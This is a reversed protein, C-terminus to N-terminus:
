DSLMLYEMNVPPEYPGSAPKIPIANRKTMNPKINNNRDFNMSLFKFFTNEQYNFTLSYNLSTM